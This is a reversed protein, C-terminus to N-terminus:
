PAGPDNRDVEAKVLDLADRSRAEVLIRLLTNTNFLSQAFAVPVIVIEDTNFGLHQGQSALVGISAFAGTASACRSGSPRRTASCSPACRRASSACRHPASPDGPPLFSGQAIQMHRIQLWQATSGIVPVERSRGGFSILASGVALPAVSHVRAAAPSRSRTTSHLTARHRASSCAARWGARDRQAGPVRDRLNTGLSTFQNM